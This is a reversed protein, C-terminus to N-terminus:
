LCDFKGEIKKKKQASPGNEQFIVQLDLAVLPVLRRDLQVAYM